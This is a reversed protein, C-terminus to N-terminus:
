GLWRIRPGPAAIRLLAQTLADVQDDHRSAPFLTAEEVLAQVWAPTRARDYGTGDANSFGPLHVNGAEVRPSVAHARGIKDGVPTIPILSPIRNRLTSFVAEANAAREILIAHGSQRPYRTNIEQTFATIAEITQPFDLQARAQDLLYANAGAIGWAQGVVYDSSPTGTFTLDWSQLIEDFAPLPGDPDYWRWWRRQFIGGGAPAPLQQLQSAARYSGLRQKLEAIVDPGFRERTLLEGPSTRPDDPCLFPHEPDFEAPLCLHTWGGQEILHGFLDHEHVRQGVIIVAGDRPNNLRTSITGDFWDLVSERQLQSDAQELKHPDDIIIIIDGGEGTAFGGVSTAVRSGGRDNDFRFKQNQDDSLSFSHGYRDRFWASGVLRRTRLSDRASLEIGYSASLFRLEPRSAWLWAPFAVSTLLSKGHRPPINILLRRVEGRAVAELHACILDIHFGPVFPSPDLLPWVLSLFLPLSRRAREAQIREGLSLM